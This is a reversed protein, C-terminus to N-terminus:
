SKGGIMIYHYTQGVICYGDGAGARWTDGADYLNAQTNYSHGNANSSLFIMAIGANSSNNAFFGHPMNHQSGAIYHDYAADFEYTSWDAYPIYSACFIMNTMDPDKPIYIYHSSTAPTFTGTTIMFVPNTDGGGGGGGGTPVPYWQNAEEDYIILVDQDMLLVQDGNHFELDGIDDDSNLIYRQTSYDTLLTVM